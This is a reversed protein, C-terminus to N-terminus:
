SLTASVNQLKDTAKRTPANEVEGVDYKQDYPRLVITQFFSSMMKIRKNDVNKRKKNATPTTSAKQWASKHALSAEEEVRKTEAEQLM